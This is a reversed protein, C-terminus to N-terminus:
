HYYISSSNASMKTSKASYNMTESRPHLEITSCFNEL